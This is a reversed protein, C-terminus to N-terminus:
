EAAMKCCYRNDLNDAVRDLMAMFVIVHTKDQMAIRENVVVFLQCFLGYYGIVSLVLFFNSSGAGSALASASASVVFFVSCSIM